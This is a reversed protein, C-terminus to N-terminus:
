SSQICNNDAALRKLRHQSKRGPWIPPCRDYHEAGRGRSQPRRRGVRYTVHHGTAWYLDHSTEARSADFMDIDVAAYRNLAEQGRTEDVPQDDSLDGHEKAAPNRQKPGKGMVDAEFM